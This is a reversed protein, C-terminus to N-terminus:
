YRNTGFHAQAQAHQAHIVETKGLLTATQEHDVLLLFFIIRKVCARVRLEARLLHTGKHRTIAQLWSAPRKLFLLPPLFVIPTRHISRAGARLRHPGHRPLAAAVLRRRRRGDRALGDHMICKVNAM